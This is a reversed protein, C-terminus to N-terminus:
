DSHSFPIQRDTFERVFIGTTKLSFTFYILLLKDVTSINQMNWSITRDDFKGSWSPDDMKPIPSDGYSLIKDVLLRINNLEEDSIKTNRNHAFGNRIKNFKNFVTVLESPLGLQKSIGVKMKFDAADYGRGFNFFDDCGTIKNCWLDLFREFCFHIRLVSGITDKTYLLARITELDYPQSFDGGLRTYSEISM